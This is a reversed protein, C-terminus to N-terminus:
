RVLREIEEDVGTSPSIASRALEYSAAPVHYMQRWDLDITVRSTDWGAYHGSAMRALPAQKHEHVVGAFTMLVCKREFSAMDAACQTKTAGKCDHEDGYWMWSTCTATNRICEDRCAEHSDMTNPLVKAGM